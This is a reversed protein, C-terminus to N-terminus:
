SQSRWTNIMAVLVDEASRVNAGVRANIELIAPQGNSGRRIDIDIPGELALARVARSALEAVEKEEVREVELANGVIGEKLATKRLVVAVTNGQPKAFLNADYEEGPLFEQYVRDASIVDPLEGEHKHVLVGRGGRGIRPKSLIPFPITELLEKKSSGCYSQPVAIGERLLAIATQWKDNAIWVVEVPSIFVACGKRRIEERQQAVKPLEETVTPVLLGIDEQDLLHTLAGTFQLDSAPPLLRFDRADELRRMDARVVRIGKEVLYNSVARGAPGGVGTVLATGDRV